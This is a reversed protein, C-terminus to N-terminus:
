SKRFLKKLRRDLEPPILGMASLSMLEDITVPPLKKLERDPLSNLYAFLRRAEELNEAGRSDEAGSDENPTNFISEKMDDLADLDSGIALLVGSKM